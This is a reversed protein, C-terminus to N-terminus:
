KALWRPAVAPPRVAVTAMSGAGLEREIRYRDALTRTLDDPPHTM